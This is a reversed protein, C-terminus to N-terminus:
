VSDGEELPCDFSFRIEGNDYTLEIWRADPSLPANIVWYFDKGQRGASLQTMQHMSFSSQYRNGIDDSLYFHYDLWPRDQWLSDARAKLLLTVSACEGTNADPRELQRVLVQQFSLTYDTFRVPDAEPYLTYGPADTGVFYDTGNMYDEPTLYYWFSQYRHVAQPLGHLFFVLVGAIALWKCIQLLRTLIPQHARRLLKATDEPNGMAFVAHKEADERSFGAAMLDAMHDEMHDLLEQRASEREKPLIIGKVAQQAWETRNAM